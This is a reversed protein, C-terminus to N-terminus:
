PQHNGEPPQQGNTRTSMGRSAPRRGPKPLRAGSRSGALQTPRHRVCAGVGLGRATAAYGPHLQRPPNVESRHWQDWTRVRSAYSAPHRVSSRARRGRLSCGPMRPRHRAARGSEPAEEAVAPQTLEGAARPGAARTAADRLAWLTGGALPGVAETQELVTPGARHSSRGRCRPRQPTAHRRRQAHPPVVLAVRRPVCSLGDSLTIATGRVVVVSAGGPAVAALRLRPRGSRALRLRGGVGADRDAALVVDGELWGSSGGRPLGAAGPWPRPGAAIHAAPTM